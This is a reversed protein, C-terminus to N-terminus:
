KNNTGNASDTLNYSFVIPMLPYSLRQWNPQFVLRLQPEDVRHHARDNIVFKDFSWKVPGGSSDVFMRGVVVSSVGATREFVEPTISHLQDSWAKHDSAVSTEVLLVFFVVPRPPTSPLKRCKEMIEQTVQRAPNSSTLAKMEIDFIVDGVRVAMDHRANGSGTAPEIEALLRRQLLYGSFNAQHIHGPETAIRQLLSSGKPFGKLLKCSEALTILYNWGPDKCICGIATRALHYAPFGQDAPMVDWMGVESPKKAANRYRRRVWEWPFATKLIKAADMADHRTFGNIWFEPDYMLRNEIAPWLKPWDLRYLSLIDGRVISFADRCQEESMLTQGVRIQAGGENTGPVPQMWLLRFGGALAKCISEVNRLDFFLRPVPSAWRLSQLDIWWLKKMADYQAKVTFSQANDSSPPKLFGRIFAERGGLELSPAFRLDSIRVQYETAPPVM